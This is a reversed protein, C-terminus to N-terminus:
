TQSDSSDSALLLDGFTETLEQALSVSEKDSRTTAPATPSKTPSGAVSTNGPLLADAAGRLATATERFLASADTTVVTREPVSPASSATQLPPKSEPTIRVAVTSPPAEIGTTSNLQGLKLALGSVLMLAATAIVAAITRHRRTTSRPRANEAAVPEPAFDGSRWSAVVRAKLNASPTPTAHRWVQIAEGLGLMEEWAERCAPCAAVHAALAADPTPQRCDLLEPLQERFENCNM